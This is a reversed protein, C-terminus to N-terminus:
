VGVPQEGRLEAMDDEHGPIVQGTDEDLHGFLVGMRKIAAEKIEPDKSVAQDELNSVLSSTRIEDLERRRSASDIDTLRKDAAARMEPDPNQRLQTLNERDTSATVQRLKAEKVKAEAEGSELPNSSPAAPAVPASGEEPPTEDKLNGLRIHQSIESAAKALKEDDFMYFDAVAGPFVEVGDLSSLVIKSNKTVNRLVRFIKKAM